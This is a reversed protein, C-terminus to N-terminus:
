QSWLPVPTRQIPFIRAWVKEDTANPTRFSCLFSHLFAENLPYSAWWQGQFYDRLSAKSEPTANHSTILAGKSEWSTKQSFHKETLFESRQQRLGGTRVPPLHVAEMLGVSNVVRWAQFSEAGRQAELAVTEGSSIIYPNGLITTGWFPHHFYHFVRHAFPHNPPFGVIKPM